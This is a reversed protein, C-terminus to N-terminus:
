CNTPARQTDLSRKVETIGGANRLEKRQARTRQEVRWSKKVRRRIANETEARISHMETKMTEQYAEMERHCAEMM